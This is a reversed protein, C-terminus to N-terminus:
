EGTRGGGRFVGVGRGGFDTEREIVARLGDAFELTCGPKARKGPKVLASWRDEGLDEVLLLEVVPSRSWIRAPIVKTDNLVLLDGARFYRDLNRFQDHRIEGTDRNVVMMRSAARDALPQQAILEAPLDYDFDSTKM